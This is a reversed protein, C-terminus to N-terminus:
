LRRVPAGVPVVRGDSQGATASAAALEPLVLVSRRRFHGAGRGSAPEHRRVQTRHQEDDRLPGFGSAM